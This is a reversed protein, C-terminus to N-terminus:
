IKHSVQEEYWQDGDYNYSMFIEENCEIVRTTYVWFNPGIFCNNDQSKPGSSRTRTSIPQKNDENDDEDRSKYEADNAMHLGFYAIPAKARYRKSAVVGGGADITIKGDSVVYRGQTGEPVRVGHYLGICVNAAFRSAAFLGYGSDPLSSKKIIFLHEWADGPEKQFHIQWEEKM